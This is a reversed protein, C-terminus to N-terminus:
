AYERAMSTRLILQLIHHLCTDDLCHYFGTQFSCPQQTSAPYSQFPLSSHFLSSTVTKTRWSGPARFSQLRRQASSANPQFCPWGQACGRREREGKLEQRGLRGLPNWCCCCLSLASFHSINLLLRELICHRNVLKGRWCRSHREYM